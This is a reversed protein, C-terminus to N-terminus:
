ECQTIELRGSHSITQVDVFYRELYDMGNQMSFTIESPLSVEPFEENITDRLFTFVSKSGQTAAYFVGGPKLIRYVESVAKNIDPVHYLMANAIAFDKSESAFPIDQIDIQLIEVNEYTGYKRTLEEVMGSTFDSLTIHYKKSADDMKGRWDKGTGAGFEVIECGDFFEYAEYIWGMDNGGVKYKDYISIRTNLKTGDKYQNLVNQTDYMRTNKM